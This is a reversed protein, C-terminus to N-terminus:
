VLGRPGILKKKNKYQIAMIEPRDYRNSFLQMNDDFEHLYEKEKGEWWFTIIQIRIPIAIQKLEIDPVEYAVVNDSEQRIPKEPFLYLITQSKNTAILEPRDLFSCSSHYRYNCKRFIISTVRGIIDVQKPIRM